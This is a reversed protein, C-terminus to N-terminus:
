ALFKDAGLDLIQNAHRRAMTLFLETGRTTEEVRVFAIVAMTLGSFSGLQYGTVCDEWNFEIPENPSQQRHNSLCRFYHKLLDMEHEVRLDTALSAGIFYAVDLLAPGFALTQWDVATVVPPQQAEDILLNDARYDYHIVASPQKELQPILKHYNSAMEEILDVVKADLRDGLRRIFEPGYEKLGTCAIDLHSNISPLWDSRQLSQDNWTAAHLAALQNLAQEAAALSCGKLQDGQVAPSMDELLLTFNCGAEDIAAHYCRPTAIPIKAALERYFSLESRYAGGAAAQERTAPDASNFKGIFTTPASEDGEIEMSLRFCRAMQGTGIQHYEFSKVSADYGNNQLVQGLWEDTLEAPDAMIPLNNM